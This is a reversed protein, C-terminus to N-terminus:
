RSSVRVDAERQTLITRGVRSSENCRACAIRSIIMSNSMCQDVRSIEYSFLNCIFRDISQNGMQCFENESM